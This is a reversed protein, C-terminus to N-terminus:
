HNEREDTVRRLKGTRPNRPLSGPDTIIALPPAISGGALNTALALRERLLLAIFESALSEKRAADVPEQTEIEIVLQDRGDLSRARLTFYQSLAPLEAVCGAVSDISVNDAGVVLVEDSRGLLEFRPSTRGCPCPGPVIRGRDGVDYRIVPMLTRDINTLIINGVEGDPMREGSDPDVIELLHLDDDLHHVAGTCAECQYGVNGTDNIAYAMSRFVRTKLVSAIYDKTADAMHEGGYGIKPIELDTIGNREVYQAIGILISPISIVGDVRFARLFSIINEMPIHGGIPLVHVGIHELAENFSIFSAWLNGAFLLNAVVDRSRFLSLGLGKAISLANRHTEEMTRYVFKPKGTTGGSSYSVSAKLSATLLGKGYPPLHERFLRSDLIPIRALEAISTLDQAPLRPRYFDSQRRAVDLVHNLKALSIRERTARDMFDFHEHFPRRHGVSVWRVLEALGRTGDHPTGHKRRHMRGIETIRDAGCAVLRDALEFLRASRALIGVSQVFEGQPALTDYLDQDSEIAVVFATRHQCSVRFVPQKELIVTWRQDGEGPILLEASGLAQDVRALERTRTIETQEHIDIPATPIQRSLADLEAALLRALRAANEAGYVFVSHPSSCAAQEWMTFDRALERMVAREDSAALAEPDLVALSYKPGFELVGTHLGRGNRYVEVTEKGGYVIVLDTERKIVAEIEEDGGKFPLLAIAPVLIRQPDVQELLKVFLMPFVPDFSSMKLINVNKTILGQVLTDAASVFVNSASVHAVVGKPVARIFGEFHRDWTFEDLWARRGLDVELRRALNGYSLISCIVGLGAEVMERSNGLLGPMVELIERRVPNDAEALLRGARDLVGLLATLPMRRQESLRTRADAILEGVAAPTIEPTEVFEGLRYWHVM